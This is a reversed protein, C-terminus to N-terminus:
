RPINAQIDTKGIVAIKGFSNTANGDPNIPIGAVSVNQLVIKNTQTGAVDAYKL